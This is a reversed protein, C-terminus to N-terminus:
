PFVELLESERELDREYAFMVGSPILVRWMKISVREVVVLPGCEYVVRRDVDAPDDRQYEHEYCYVSRSDKRVFRLDGTRLM